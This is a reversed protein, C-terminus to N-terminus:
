PRDIRNSSFGNLHNLSTDYEVSPVKDLEFANVYDCVCM